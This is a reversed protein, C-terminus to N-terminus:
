WANIRVESNFFFDFEFAGKELEILPHKPNFAFMVSADFGWWPPAAFMTMTQYSVWLPNQRLPPDTSASRRTQTVTMQAAARLFPPPHPLLAPGCREQKM